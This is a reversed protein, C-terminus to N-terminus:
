KELEYFQRLSEIRGRCTDYFDRASGAWLAVDTDTAWAAGDALVGSNAATGAAADAPIGAPAPLSGRVGSGAPPNLLRLADAALCPRGTTSKRIANDREKAIKANEAELALQKQALADGASEIERAKQLAATVAANADARVEAANRELTAIQVNKQLAVSWGGTLLGLSFFLAAVLWFFQSVGVFSIARNFLDTM